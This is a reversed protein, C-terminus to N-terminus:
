INVNKLCSNTHINKMFYRVSLCVSLMATVRVACYACMCTCFTVDDGRQGTRCNWIMDFYNLAYIICKRQGIYRTRYDSINIQENIVFIPQITEKTFGKFSSELSHESTKKWISSASVLNNRWTDSWLCQRCPAGVGGWVFVGFFQQGGESTASVTACVSKNSLMATVHVACYACMCTRFTVDDRVNGCM